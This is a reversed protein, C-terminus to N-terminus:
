ATRVEIPSKITDVFDLLDKRNVPKCVTKAVNLYGQPEGDGIGGTIVLTPIKRGQRFLNLCVEYGDLEPMRMDLVLADVPTSYIIELAQKGNKASRTAWGASKLVTSIVEMTIPDDDAVLITGHNTKGPTGISNTQM